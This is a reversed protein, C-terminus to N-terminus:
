CGVGRSARRERRIACSPAEFSNHVPASCGGFAQQLAFVIAAHCWGERDAKAHPLNSKALAIQNRKGTGSAQTRTEAEERIGGLGRAATESTLSRKIAEDFKMPIHLPIHLPGERKPKEKM